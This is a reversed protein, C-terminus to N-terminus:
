MYKKRRKFNVGIIGGIASSLVMMVLKTIAALSLQAGFFILSICFLLLYYVLGMLSGIMLGRKRYIKSATIGAALSSLIVAFDAIINVTNQPLDSKSMIVSSILLVLTCIIIGGVLGFFLARIMQRGSMSGTAYESM